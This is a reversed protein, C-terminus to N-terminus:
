YTHNTSHPSTFSFHFNWFRVLFICTIWKSCRNCTLNQSPVFPSFIIGFIPVTFKYNSHSIIICNGVMILITTTQNKHSRNNCWFICYSWLLPYCILGHLFICMLHLIYIWHALSIFPAHTVLNVHSEKSTLAFLHKKSLLIFIFLFFYM